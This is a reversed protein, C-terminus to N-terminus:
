FFSLRLSCSAHLTASDSAHAMTRCMPTHHTPLPQRTLHSKYLCNHSMAPQASISLNRGFVSNPTPGHSLCSHSHTYMSIRCYQPLMAPSTNSYRTQLTVRAGHSM